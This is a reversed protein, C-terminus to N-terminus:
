WGAERAKLVADCLSLTPVQRSMEDRLESLSITPEGYHKLARDALNGAKKVKNLLRKSDMIKKSSIKTKDKSIM